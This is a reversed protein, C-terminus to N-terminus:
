AVEVRNRGASKAAYLADDARKLLGTVGEGAEDCAAVGISCTVQLAQGDHSRHAHSELRRRLREALARAKSLGTEPLLVCFEEGGYRAAIDAVRITRRIEAASRTLVDDGTLHGFRDNVKKFNDLDILMLCLRRHYRRVRAAEEKLRELLFRRNFLGTLPDTNAQRELEAALRKEASIDRHTAVFGEICRGQDFVPAITVATEILHGDRRRNVLEGTWTRGAVITEWLERYLHEPVRGSKLFAPTRGLVEGVPYGTLRAFAPNVYEIRGDVGTVMMSEAASDVVRAMQRVARANDPSTPVPADLVREICRVLRESTLASKPLYDAAGCRLAEVALLEDGYGTLLVLPTALRAARAAVVLGLGDGDPLRYDVFCCDYAHSQLLALGAERTPADHVETGPAAKALARRVAIRDCDDDEVVLIRLADQGM